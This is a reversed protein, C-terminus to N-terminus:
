KKGKKAPKVPSVKTEVKKRSVIVAEAEEKKLRKEEAIMEFRQKTRRAARAKTRELGALRKNVNDM